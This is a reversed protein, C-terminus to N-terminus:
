YKGLGKHSTVFSSGVPCSKQKHSALRDNKQNNLQFIEPKAVFDLTAGNGYGSLAVPDRGSM